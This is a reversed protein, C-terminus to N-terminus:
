TDSYVSQLEYIAELFRKLDELTDQLRIVPCGHYTEHDEHCPQPIDAMHRFVNSQAALIDLHVRFGHHACVLLIDGDDHWIIQRSFTDTPIM